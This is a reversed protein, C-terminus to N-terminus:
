FYANLSLMGNIFQPTNRGAASFWIGGILGLNESFNYEIAPALSFQESSPLGVPNATRGSFRSRNQHRYYMDCAFAWNLSFNYQIAIDAFYINGPYATGRTTPDGGYISLGKLSTPTGVRYGTYVRAEFYHHGGVRWLKSSVIALEPYWSGTGFADTGLKSLSLRQYKGCPISTRLILRIAPWPDDIKNSYLLQINFNLPLDAFGASSKGQTEKFGTQPIIQVDLWSTIGTKFRTRLNINYFNPVSHVKWDSNFAGVNVFADFYPQLTFHGPKVTYGSPAILPGTFWPSKYGEFDTYHTEEEDALLPLSFIIFGLLLLCIGRAAMKQSNQHADKPAWRM